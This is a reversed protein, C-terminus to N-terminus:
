RRHHRRAVAGAGAAGDRRHSTRRRSSASRRSASCSPGARTAGRMSTRRRQDAGVTAGRRARRSRRSPTADIPSRDVPLPLPSLPPLPPLAPPPSSPSPPLEPPSPPPDYATPTTNSTPGQRMPTQQEGFVSANASAPPTPPSSGQLSIPPPHRRRHRRRVVPRALRQLRAGGRPRTTSGRASRRASRPTSSRTACSSATVGRLRTEGQEECNTRWMPQLGGGAADRGPPRRTGQAALVLRLM